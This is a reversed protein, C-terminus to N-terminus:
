AHPKFLFHVFFFINFSHHDVYPPDILHKEEKVQIYWVSSSYQKSFTQPFIMLTNGKSGKNSVYM